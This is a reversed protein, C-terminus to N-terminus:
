TKFKSDVSNLDNSIKNKIRKGFYIKTLKKESVDTEGFYDM